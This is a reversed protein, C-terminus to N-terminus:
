SYIEQRFNKAVGGRPARRTATAVLERMAAAKSDLRSGLLQSAGGESLPNEPAHVRVMFPLDLTEQTVM